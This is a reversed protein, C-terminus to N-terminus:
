SSRERLEWEDVCIPTRHDTQRFKLTKGLQFMFPLELSGTQVQCSDIIELKGWWGNRLTSSVWDRETRDIRRFGCAYLGITDYDTRRM